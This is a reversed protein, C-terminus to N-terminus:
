LAIIKKLKYIRKKNFNDVGKNFYNLVFSDNPYIKIMAEMIKYGYFPIGTFSKKMIPQIDLAIKM